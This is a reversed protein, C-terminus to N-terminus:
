YRVAVHPVFTFICYHRRHQRGGRWDTCLCPMSLPFTLACSTDTIIYTKGSGVTGRVVMRMPEQQRETFSRDVVRYVFAQDKSLKDVDVVVSKPWIATEKVM